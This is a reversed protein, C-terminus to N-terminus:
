KNYGDQLDLEFKVLIDNLSKIKIECDKVINELTEHSIQMKGNYFNKLIENLIDRKNNLALKEDAILRYQDSLQKVMSM